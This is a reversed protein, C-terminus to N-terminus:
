SINKEKEPMNDMDVYVDTDKRNGFAIHQKTKKCSNLELLIDSGQKQERWKKLAVANGKNNRKGKLNPNKELRFVYLPCDTHECNKVESKVGGSCDM